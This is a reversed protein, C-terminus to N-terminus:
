LNDPVQRMKVFHALVELVEAFVFRAQDLAHVPSMQRFRSEALSISEFVHTLSVMVLVNVGDAM